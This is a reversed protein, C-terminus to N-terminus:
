DINCNCPIDFDNEDEWIQPMKAIELLQKVTWNKDFTAGTIEEMEIWWKAEEPNERLISIRKSRGKLFCLTCNGLRKPIELDFPMDAWYALIEFETVKDLYLPMRNTFGERNEKNKYYRNPEDYRIGIYMDVDGNEYGLSKIYKAMPRIKLETTCIRHAVNPLYSRKLILDRYPEGNRAATEYAVQKFGNEPCYELWVCVCGMAECHRMVQDVFDLTKAHEKGTNAFIVLDGAKAYRITMYASTRGGSFSFVNVSEGGFRQKKIRKSKPTSRPDENFLNM